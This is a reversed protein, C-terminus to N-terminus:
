GETAERLELGLASALKSATSLRIDGGRELHDGAAMFRSIVSADVGAARGLEFYSRGSATIAKKLAALLGPVKARAAKKKAM